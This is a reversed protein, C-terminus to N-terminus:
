ELLLQISGVPQGCLDAAEVGGVPVITAQQKEPYGDGENYDGQGNIPVSAIDTFSVNSYSLM